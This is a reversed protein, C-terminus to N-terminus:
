NTHTGPLSTPRRLCCTYPTQKQIWEALRQRKTPANPGNVSLTIISLYIRIAMTIWQKPNTKQQDKKKRKGRTRKEQPKVVIKLTTNPNSTRIQTHSDYLNQNATVM